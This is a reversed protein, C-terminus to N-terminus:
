ALSRFDTIFLLMGMKICHGGANSKIKFPPCGTATLYFGPWPQANFFLGTSQKLSSGAPACAPTFPLAGSNIFLRGM